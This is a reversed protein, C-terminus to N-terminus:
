GHCALCAFFKRAFSKPKSKISQDIQNNKGCVVIQSEDAGNEKAKECEHLFSKLANECYSAAEVVSMKEVLKQPYIEKKEDGKLVAALQVLEEQFESIQRTENAEMDRLKVPDNLTVTM